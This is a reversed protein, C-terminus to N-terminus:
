SPGAAPEETAESRARRNRRILSRVTDSPRAGQRIWREIAEERLSTAGGNRPEYTGLNELVRGQRQRREDIAVVRYCPRKKTGTRFLRIKVV